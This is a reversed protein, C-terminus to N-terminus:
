DGWSYRKRRLISAYARYAKGSVAGLKHFLRRFRSRELWRLGKVLRSDSQSSLSEDRSRILSEVEAASLLGAHGRLMFDAVEYAYDRFGYFAATFALNTASTSLGKETLLRYDKLYLADGWVLQGRTERDPPYLSRRYYKRSLDFLVFGFRRLYADVDSFLPQSQYIPSFEVEVQIGVLSSDLFAQAGQLIDLETGQTDLELFDVQSVGVTPLFTDLAVTQTELTGTVSILSACNQFQGFFAANPLLLSSFSLDSTLHLTRAESGKGAALPVYRYRDGALPQLRACEDPDPEFGVYRAWPLAEVLPHHSDSRAGCAVCVYTMPGEVAPTSPAAPGAPAAQSARSAADPM